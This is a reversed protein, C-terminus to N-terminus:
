GVLKELEALVDAATEPRTEAKQEEVIQQELDSARDEAAESTSMDTTRLQQVLNPALAEEDVTEQPAPTPSPEPEGIPKVKTRPLKVVKTGSITYPELTAKPHGLVIDEKVGGKEVLKEVVPVRRYKTRSFLTRVVVTKKNSKVVEADYWDRGLMVKVKQGPQYNIRMGKYKTKGV